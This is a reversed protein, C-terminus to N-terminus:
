EAGEHSMRDFYDRLIEAAALGDRLSKKQKHTRGTKAMHQDAAFSTLREDQYVVECDTKTLLLRGLRETLATGPNGSGDMSLPLGIVIFSPQHEEIVKAMERVWHRCDDDLSVRAHIADLPSIIGSERDGVALGTRKTGPDIALYRM